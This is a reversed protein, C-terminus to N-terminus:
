IRIDINITIVHTSVVRILSILHKTTTVHDTINNLIVDIFVISIFHRTTSSHSASICINTVGVSRVCTVTSNNSRIVLACINGPVDRINPHSTTVNCISSHTILIGKVHGISVLFTGSVYGASVRIIDIVSVRISVYTTLSTLLLIRDDNIFSSSIFNAQSSVSTVNECLAYRLYGGYSSALMFSGSYLKLQVNFRNVEPQGEGWFAGRVKVGNAWLYTKGSKQKANVYFRDYKSRYDQLLATVNQFKRAEDLVILQGGKAQCFKHTKEVTLRRESFFYSTHVSGDKIIVSESVGM